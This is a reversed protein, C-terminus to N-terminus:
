APYDRKPHILQNEGDEMAEWGLFEAIRTALDSYWGYGPPSDTGVRVIRDFLPIFAGNSGWGGSGATKVILGDM